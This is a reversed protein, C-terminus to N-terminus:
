KVEKFTVEVKVSPKEKPKWEHTDPTDKFILPLIWYKATGDDELPIDSWDKTVWGTKVVKKM